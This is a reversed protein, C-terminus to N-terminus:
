LPSRETIETRIDIQTGESGSTELRVIRTRRKAFGLQDAEIKIEITGSISDNARPELAEKLTVPERMIEGVAVDAEARSRRFADPDIPLSAGYAAPGSRDPLKRLATPLLGGADTYPVGDSLLASGLDYAAIMELVSDPECEILFANWTFIWKGCIDRTWKARALWADLRGDLEDRNLLELSDDARRLVRAPLSWERIRADNDSDPSMDYELEIGDARIAVVREVIMTSGSSSGSSGNSGSQESQYSRVLEFRDGVRLPEREAAILGGGIFSTLAAIAIAVRGM